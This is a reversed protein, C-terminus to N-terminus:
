VPRESVYRQRMHDTGFIILGYIWGSYPFSTGLVLTTVEEPRKVTGAKQPILSVLAFDPTLRRLDGFVDKPKLGVHSCELSPLVPHLADEVGHEQVGAVGLVQAAGTSEAGVAIAVIAKIVVVVDVIIIIITIVVVIIQWGIEVGIAVVRARVVFLVGVACGVHRVAGRIGAAVNGLLIAATATTIQM